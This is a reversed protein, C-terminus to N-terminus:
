NDYIDEIEEKSVLEKETTDLIETKTKDLIDDYRSGYLGILKKLKENKNLDHYLKLYNDHFFTANEGGSFGEEVFQGTGHAQSIAKSYKLIGFDAGYPIKVNEQSKIFKILDNKNYTKGKLAFHTDSFLGGLGILALKKAFNEVDVKDNFYAIDSKFNLRLKGATSNSPGRLSYDPPSHFQTSNILKKLFHTHSSEHSSIRKINENLGNFKELYQNNNKIINKSPSFIKKLFSGNIISLYISLYIIKKM